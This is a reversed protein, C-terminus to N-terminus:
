PSPLSSIKLLDQGRIFDALWTGYLQNGHPNFHGDYKWDLLKIKSEAILAETPDFFPLNLTDATEMFFNEAVRVDVKDQDLDYEGIIEELKAPSTQFAPPIYIMVIPIGREEAMKKM